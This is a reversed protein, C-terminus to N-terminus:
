RGYRVHLQWYFLGGDEYLDLYAKLAKRDNKQHMAECAKEKLEVSVFCKPFTLYDVLM